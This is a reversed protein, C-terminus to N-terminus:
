YRLALINLNLVLTSQYDNNQQHRQFQRALRSDLIDHKPFQFNQFYRFKLPNLYRNMIFFFYNGFNDLISKWEM